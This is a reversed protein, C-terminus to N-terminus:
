DDSLCVSELVQSDTKASKKVHATGGATSLHSYLLDKKEEVIAHILIKSNM